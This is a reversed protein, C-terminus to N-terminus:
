LVKEMRRQPQSAGAGIAVAQRGRWAGVHHLAAPGCRDANAHVFLPCNDAADNAAEKVPSGFVKKMMSQKAADSAAKEVSSDRFAKAADNRGEQRFIWADSAAKKVSSPLGLGTQLTKPLNKSTVPALVHRRCRGQCYM